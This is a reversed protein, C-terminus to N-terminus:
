ACKPCQHKEFFFCWVLERLSRFLAYRTAWAGSPSGTVNFHIIKRRDHAIIILVYLVRFTATPVTFLDVAVIDQVHSDLFTRWRLRRSRM